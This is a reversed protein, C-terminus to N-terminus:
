AFRGPTTAMTATFTGDGDVAVEGSLDLGNTLGESRRRHFGQELGLTGPLRKIERGPQPTFCHVLQHLCSQFPSLSASSGNDWMERELIRM